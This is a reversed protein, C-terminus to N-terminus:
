PPRRPDLCAPRAMQPGHRSRLPRQRDRVGFPPRGIIRMLRRPTSRGLVRFSGVNVTGREAKLGPQPLFHARSTELTNGWPYLKGELGGRAAKEWEAESPLRVSEGTKSALWACYAMADDITVLTVPHKERGEPPTGDTWFYGSALSRFEAELAGSIMLPLGRVAPSPHGTEAIFQAYEANTVPCTGICFEDLYAKHAPREDEEGDDAGMAFEGAPIRAVQLLSEDAVM